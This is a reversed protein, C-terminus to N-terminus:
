SEITRYEVPRGAKRAAEIGEVMGQSVGKDTYVVTADAVRAWSLGAAIGLAREEPLQDDLVQPYLLHSLFPAEGLSLSHKMARLAYDINDNYLVAFPSELIVRRM